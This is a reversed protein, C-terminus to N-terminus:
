YMNKKINFTNNNIQNIRRHNLQNLNTYKSFVIHYPQIFGPEQYPNSSLQHNAPEIDCANFSIQENNKQNNYLVPTPTIPQQNLNQETEENYKNKPLLSEEDM